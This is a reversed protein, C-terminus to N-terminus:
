PQVLGDVLEEILSPVTPEALEEVVPEVDEVVPTPILPSGADVPPEPEPEPEAYVPPTGIVVVSPEPAPAPEVVVPTPVTTRTPLPQGYYTVPGDDPEWVDADTPVITPLVAREARGMGRAGADDPRELSPLAAATPQVTPAWTSHWGAGAAAPLLAGTCGVLSFYLWRPTRRAHRGTM